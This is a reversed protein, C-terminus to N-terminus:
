IWFNIESVDVIRFLNRLSMSNYKLLKFNPFLALNINIHITPKDNVWIVTKQNYHQISIQLWLGSYVNSM